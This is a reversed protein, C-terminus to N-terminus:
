NHSTNEDNGTGGERLDRRLKVVLEKVAEAHDMVTESLLWDEYFNQHLTSALTFLRVLEPEELEM